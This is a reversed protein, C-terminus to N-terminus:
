PHNHEFVTVTNGDQEFAQVLRYGKMYNSNLVGSLLTMNVSGKNVLAVYHQAPNPCAAIAGAAMETTQPWTEQRQDRWGMGRFPVAGNERRYREQEGM